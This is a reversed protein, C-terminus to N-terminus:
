CLIYIGQLYQLQSLAMSLESKLNDAKFILSSENMFNKGGFNNEKELLYSKSPTIALGNEPKNGFNNKKTIKKIDYKECMQYPYFNTKSNNSANVYTNHESNSNNSYTNQNDSFKCHKSNSVISQRNQSSDLYYNQSEQYFGSQNSEYSNKKNEKELLYNRSPSVAMGSHSKIKNEELIGKRTPSGTKILKPIYAPNNSDFSNLSAKEIKQFILNKEYNLNLINIDHM